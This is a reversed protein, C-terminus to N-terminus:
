TPRRQRNRRSPLVEKRLRRLLTAKRGVVMLVVLAFLRILWWRSDGTPLDPLMQPPAPPPSSPKKEASQVFPDEAFGTDYRYEPEQPTFLVETVQGDQEYSARITQLPGTQEFIEFGLWFDALLKEKVPIAFTVDVNRGSYEPETMPPTSRADPWLYEFEAALGLSAPKENIELPIHKGLYLVLDTQASDLESIGILGDGDADIKVLRALTLINFTLRIELHHPAPRVRMLSEDAPHAHLFAGLCFALFVGM